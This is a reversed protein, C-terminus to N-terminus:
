KRKPKFRPSMFQFDGSILYHEKYITNNKTYEHIFIGEFSGKVYSTKMRMFNDIVADETNVFVSQAELNIVDM